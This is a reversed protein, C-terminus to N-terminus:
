MNAHYWNITKQIGEDLTIRPEWGFVTKAETCDLSLSTKISPKSKDYEISIEKGSALIIKKVLESISISSGYGVNCLCFSPDQKDIALRVFEVLDSVYLFDREEQGDGWIVMKGDNASLVKTVTAGFVHSHELDFKDHPGYNNSHRVVTYKTPGIGSYFQCMKELYVKTWGAGFYEPHMNNGANFDTEKVPDSGSPYMISCSFFIVQAVKHEFAARFILSNMLANDTVHIYPRAVIDNVGSTTAAAQIICDVQSVCSDVGKSQTLDAQIWELGQCEFPPRIHFVGKVDYDERGAFTEALNKGIFGTAGCILIKKKAM